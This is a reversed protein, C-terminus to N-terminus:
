CYNELGINKNNKRFKENYLRKNKKQITQYFMWAFGLKVNAKLRLSRKKDRKVM